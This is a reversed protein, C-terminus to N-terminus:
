SERVFYCKGIMWFVSINVVVILFLCPYLVKINTTNIIIAASIVFLSVLIVNIFNKNLNTSNKILSVNFANKFIGCILLLYIYVFNFDGFYKTVPMFSLEIFGIYSLNTLAHEGVTMILFGYEMACGCVSLILPLLFSIRSISLSEKNLLLKFNDFIIFLSFLIIFWINIDEVIFLYEVELKPTVFLSIIILLLGGFNFLTSIDIIEYPLLNSVFIITLGILLFLVYLNSGEIFIKNLFFGIFCISIITEMSFLFCNIWKILSKNYQDAFNSIFLKKPLLLIIGILVLIIICLLLFGTTGFGDYLKPFILIRLWLYNYFFVFLFFSVKSTKRM